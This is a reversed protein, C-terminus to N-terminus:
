SLSTLVGQLTYLCSWMGIALEFYYFFFYIFYIYLITILVWSILVIIIIDADSSRRTM